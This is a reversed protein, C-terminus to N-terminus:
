VQAISSPLGYGEENRAKVRISYKKEQLGIYRSSFAGNPIGDRVTKHFITASGDLQTITSTIQPINAQFYIGFFKIEFVFEVSSQSIISVEIDGKISELSVLSSYIKNSTMFGDNSPWDILDTDYGDFSLTFHTAADPSSDRLTVHQTEVINGLIYQRRDYGYSHMSFIHVDTGRLNSEPVIRFTSLDSSYAKVVIEHEFGNGDKYIACGFCDRSVIGEAILYTSYVTLVKLKDNGIYISDESSIEISLDETTWIIIEDYSYINLNVDMNTVTPGQFNPNIEVCNPKCGDNISVVEYLFDAIVLKTGQQVALPLESSVYLYPSGVTSELVIMEAQITARGTLIRKSTYYSGVTVSVAVDDNQDCDNFFSFSLSFDNSLFVPIMTMGQVEADIRSPSLPYKSTYILGAGSSSDFPTYVPAGIVLDCSGIRMNDGEAVTNTIDGIISVYKSSFSILSDDILANMNLNDVGHKSGLVSVKGIGELKHLEELIKKHTARYSILGTAEAGIHIRYDGSIDNKLATSTINLLPYVNVKANLGTTFKDNVVIQEKTDETTMFKVVWAIGHSKDNHPHKTVEVHDAKTLTKVYTLLEEASASTPVDHAVSGAYYMDFKGGFPADSDIVIVQTEMMGNSCINEDKISLVFADHNNGYDFPTCIGSGFNNKPIKLLPWDGYKYEGHFQIKYEFPFMENSHTEIALVDVGDVNSLAQLATQLDTASVDFPICATEENDFSLQFSGSTILNSDSVASLTLYQTSSPALYFSGCTSIDTFMFDVGYDDPEIGNVLVDVSSQIKGYRSSSRVGELNLSIISMDGVDQIFTIKWASTYEDMKISEVQVSEISKLMMLATSIDESIAHVSIPVTKLQFDSNDRSLVIEFFGFTDNEVDNSISIQIVKQVGFNESTTWEIKFSDIESGHNDPTSFRLDIQYDSLAIASLDPPNPASAVKYYLPRVGRGKDQDVITSESIGAENIALVRAVYKSGPKLNAAIMFNDAPKGKISETITIKVNSGNIDMENSAMLMKMDDMNSVFTVFWMLGGDVKIRTVSVDGISPHSELKTELDFPLEDHNIRMVYPEDGYALTFSGDINQSSSTLKITQVENRPPSTTENFCLNSYDPVIGERIIRTEILSNHGSLLTIPQQRSSISAGSSWGSSPPVTSCSSVESLVISLSDNLVWRENIPDFLIISSGGHLEYMSRGNLYEKFIYVGDIEANVGLVDIVHVSNQHVTLCDALNSCENPSFNSTYTVSWIYENKPSPGTRSVDVSGISPLSTLANKMLQASADAPVIVKKRIYIPSSIMSGAYTTTLILENGSVSDVEFYLDQGLDDRIKIFDSSGVLGEFSRGNTEVIKNENSEILGIGVRNDMEFVNVNQNNTGSKHYELLIIESSGVKAVQIIESAIRLKEGVVIISSLDVGLTDVKKSGAEIKVWVLQNEFSLVQDYIGEFGVSLYFFGDVHEDGMSKITTVQPLFANAGERTTEVLFSYSSDMFTGCSIHDFSLEEQNGNSVIEGDFVVEYTSTKTDNNLISIAVGDIAPLEELYVEMEDPSVGIPMCRTQFGGLGLRFHENPDYSNFFISITQVEFVGSFIEVRYASVPSGNSGEPGVGFPPAFDIRLATSGHSTLFANSVTNPIDMPITQIPHNPYGFFSFSGMLNQTSVAAVRIYYPFGPTLDSVLFSFEKSDFGLYIKIVGNVKGNYESDLTLCNLGCSSDNISEVIFKRDSIVLESGIQIIQNVVLSSDSIMIRKRRDVDEHDHYTAIVFGISNDVKNSDISITRLAAGSQSTFSPSTDYEIVFNEINSGGNTLPRNWSVLISRSSHTTVSVERPVSPAVHHLRLPFAWANTPNGGGINNYAFIRVYWDTSSTLGEIIASYTSRGVQYQCLGKTIEIVIVSPDSISINPIDGRLSMFTLFIDHGSTVLNGPCTDCKM